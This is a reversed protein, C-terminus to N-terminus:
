RTTRKRERMALLAVGPGFLWILVTGGFVLGTYSGRACYCDDDKRMAWAHIPGAVLLELFTGALLARTTRSLATRHDLNRWLHHFVGAWLAWLLLMAVWVPWFRQGERAAGTLRLWHGGPELLAAALGVTLLMGAFAAGAAARWMPRGTDTTRFAVRGRPLLFLAQTLVFLGAYGAVEIGYIVEAGHESGGDDAMPAAPTGYLGIGIQDSLGLLPNLLFGTLVLFAGLWLLGWRVHRATVRAGPESAYSLLPAVSKAPSPDTDHSINGL